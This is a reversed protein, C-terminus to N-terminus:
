STMALCFLGSFARGRRQFSIVSLSLSSTIRTRPRSAATRVAEALHELVGVTDDWGICADTISVGYALAKGPVLDQRGANLHSEVMVGFIRADGAAIQARSTTRLRRGAERAAQQSNAHSCDIM